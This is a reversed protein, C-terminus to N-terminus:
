DTFEVRNKGNNKAVYLAEDAKAIFNAPHQDKDPVSFVVGISVTVKGTSSKVHDMDLDKIGTVLEDLVKLIGNKDVEQLLVIFEEGGYRAPLDTSRKITNKLVNAINKICEDGQVHGYTDNYYKFDDIDIMLIAIPRNSRISLSLAQKFFDDFMRRNSIGTLGDLFSLRQLTVNREQLELTRQAVQSELNSVLETLQTGMTNFSDTLQGLEDRRNKSPVSNFTGETLSKAASNLKVIPKTIWRSLWFAFISFLLIFFVAIGVTKKRTYRLERLYDVDALVIYISWNIDNKKFSEVAVYYKKDNFNFNVLSNDTNKEAMSMSTQIIKNDSENAKISIPKGNELKFVKDGSSSAVLQNKYDVVFIQGSSGVPLTSITKGLWTLLYDVGFVGVIENNEYIPYSVTITPENFVFHSYIDSFSPGKTEEAKKYWPRKRPDFNDFKEAFSIGEGAESVFFYESAGKTTKNNRVVQIKGDLTRRAGYFSGDKLGIYTMSADPFNKLLSVFYKERSSQNELNVVKSKLFDVHIENLKSAESLKNDLEANIQMLMAKSMEKLVSNVARQGGQMLTLTVFIMAVVLPVILPIIFATRISKFGTGKIYEKINSLEKKLSM